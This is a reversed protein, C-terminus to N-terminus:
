LPVPAAERQVAAIVGGGLCEDGRYFVAYQGPTPAFVPVRTTVQLTGDPGEALGCPVPPQRHRTRVALAGAPPGGGALDDHLWRTAGVSFGTAWLSPHDHGQVVVLENPGARKDAVYWAGEGDPQGGVGFGQRQGLTYYALGRHQGLVAGDTTVIPGPQEPVFGALFDRFSRKGIFCIGTSDRKAHVPLGADAALRRVEAKTLDGLPFIARALAAPEIAHLFYTQDKATDRATLLRPPPGHDVRAYHGTALWRAGLRTAHALCAGFKIHRNCDVDPNPTRGARYGAVFDSFVQERYERAFNAHHLTIGLEDAVARADLLDQRATCAPDADDWNTMHLAEVRHGARLLRLAAVASDVGGSLAVIVLEGPAVTM